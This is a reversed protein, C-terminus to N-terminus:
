LSCPPPPPSPVLWSYMSPSSDEFEILYPRNSTAADPASRRIVFQSIVSNLNRGLQIMLRELPPETIRSFTSKM